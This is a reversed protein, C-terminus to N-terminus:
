LFCLVGPCLLPFVLIFWTYALAAFHCCLPTGSCPLAVHLCCLRLERVFCTLFPLVSAVRSIWSSLKLSLSLSPSIIVKTTM